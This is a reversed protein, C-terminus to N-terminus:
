KKPPLNDKLLKKGEIDSGHALVNAYVDMMQRSKAMADKYYKVYLDENTKKATSDGAKAAVLHKRLYESSTKELEVMDRYLTKIEAIEPFDKQPQFDALAAIMKPYVAPMSDVKAIAADYQYYKELDIAEAYPDMYDNVNLGIMIQFKDLEKKAIQWAAYDAEVKEPPTDNVIKISAVDTLYPGDFCQVPLKESSHEQCMNTHYTGKVQVTKGIYKEPSDVDDDILTGNVVLGAKSERVDGTITVGAYSDDPLKPQGDPQIYPAATPKPEPPTQKQWTSCGNLFVALIGVIIITNVPKTM